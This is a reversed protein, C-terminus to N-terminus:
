RPGRVARVFNPDTKTSITVQGNFFNVAEAVTDSGASTTSSWWLGNLGRTCSCQLVTCGPACGTRFAAAVAGNADLANGFDILTHLERVNPIRWDAHGAFGTGGEANVM